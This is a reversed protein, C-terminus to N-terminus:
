FDGIGKYQEYKLDQFQSAKIRIGINYSQNFGFPVWTLYLEWCHLDRALELTTYSLNGKLLDWGTNVNVHWNVTPDFNLRAGITHSSVRTNLMSLNSQYTYRLNLSWNMRYNLYSDLKYYNRDGETLGIGSGGEKDEAKSEAKGKIAYDVSFNNRTNWVLKNNVDLAAQNVRAGSTDRGYPDFTGQYQINMKKNFFKTSATVGIPNWSFETAAINYATTFNLRDLISFKKLGSSDKKSLAKGELINNLSLGVSGRSGYGANGYLYGQYRDYVNENGNTDVISQYYDWQEEGFDPRFSFNVQPTMVHRIAKISGKKFNFLGYFKTSLNASVNFDQVMSFGYLTDTEVTNSDPNFSHNLRSPYWRANYNFSPSFSFYKLVKENTSLGVTHRLGYRLASTVEEITDFDTINGNFRNEGTLGYVIGIREYWSQSGVRRKKEFPMVRSMNVALKPLSLELDGSRSNQNHNASVTMSWPTGQWNKDLSISSAMTSQLYENASKTNFRNYNFTAFNVNANFRLSPNAKPDQAHTWNIRFDNSSQFGGLREYRPDGIKTVNYRLSLNGRYKYRKVYNNTSRLGWSGRTYIDGTIRWDLYDSIAWYYGGNLLGFGKGPNVGNGSNNFDFTPFIFGSARRDQAPFFGFPLVLPTPIDAFEIYAPGTVIQKGVIVKSKKTRVRFHPHRHSCTTFSANGMYYVDSSTRKIRKTAIFSEGEKTNVQKIVAKETNFNYTISDIEYTKGDQVFVPTQSVKGTSDTIGTASVTNNNWDILIFGANIKTGQYEVFANNYLYAQNGAFNGKISDAASYDLIDVLWAESAPLVSDKETSDLATIYSKASFDLGKSDAM